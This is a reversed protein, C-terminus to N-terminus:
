SAPAQALAEARDRIAALWMYRILSSGPYILRWYVAFRRRATADTAFIRTETVLRIWGDGEGVLLFSMVAKTYGPEAVARYREPPLLQLEPPTFVLTGIVIERSPEEALLLFGSGLAVDLIPRDAPPALIDEPSGSGPLRPRRLWTLLRFLRIERATVARVARWVEDRSARIRIEHLEAFQWTPIFEDLLSSPTGTGIPPAPLLAAALLLFVGLGLVAAARRRTRGAAAETSTPDAESIPPWPVAM